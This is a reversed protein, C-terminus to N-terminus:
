LKTCNIILALSWANQQIKQSCDLTFIVQCASSNRQSQPAAECVQGRAAEWRREEEGAFEERQEEFEEEGEGEGEWGQEHPDPVRQEEGFVRVGARVEGEGGKGQEEGTGPGQEAKEQVQEQEELDGSAQSHRRAVGHQNNKHPLQALEYKVRKRGQKQLRGDEEKVQVKQAPEKGPEEGEKGEALRCDDQM